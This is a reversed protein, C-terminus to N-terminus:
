QRRLETLQEEIARLQANQARLELLLANGIYCAMKMLHRQPEGARSRCSVETSACLDCYYLERDNPFGVQYPKLEAGEFGCCECEKPPNM